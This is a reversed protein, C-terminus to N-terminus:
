VGEMKNDDDGGIAGSSRGAINPLKKKPNVLFGKQHTIM